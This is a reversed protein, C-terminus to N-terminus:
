CRDPRNWGCDPRGARNHGPRSLLGATDVFSVISRCYRSHSASKQLTITLDPRIPYVISSQTRISFTLVEFISTYHSLIYRSYSHCLWVICGLLLRLRRSLEHQNSEALHSREAPTFMVFRVDGAGARMHDDLGAPPQLQPLKDTDAIITGALEFAARLLDFFIEARGLGALRDDGFGSCKHTKGRGFVQTFLLMQFDGGDLLGFGTFFQGGFQIQGHLNDFGFMQKAAFAHDNIEGTFPPHIEAFQDFAHGTFVLGTDFQPLDTGTVFGLQDAIVFGASLFAAALPEQFDQGGHVHPHGLQLFGRQVRGFDAAM